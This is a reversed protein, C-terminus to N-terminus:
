VNYTGGFIVIVAVTFLAIILTRIGSWLWFQKSIRGIFVGLLFICILAVVISSIFPPLPLYYGHEAILIPMLILLSFLLPSLGNVLAVFIPLFRSAEGYYSGELDSVLAQEMEHLEKEREAKESLYASCLGSVFLAVSVGICASIAVQLDIMGSMQFGTMMGLMTLVGDFGNTVFYRRAIAKARKIHLLFFKPKGAIM